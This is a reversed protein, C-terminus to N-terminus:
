LLCVKQCFKKGAMNSTMSPLDLSLRAATLLCTCASHFCKVVNPELEAAVEGRGSIQDAGVARSVSQIRNALQQPLGDSQKPLGDSQKIEAGTVHAETILQVLQQCQHLLEARLSGPEAVMKSGLPLGALLGTALSRSPISPSNVLSSSQSIPSQHITSLVQLCFECASQLAPLFSSSSSSSLSYNVAALLHALLLPLHFSIASEM